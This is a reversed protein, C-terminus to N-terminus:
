GADGRRTLFTPSNVIGAVLDQFKLGNGSFKSAVASLVSADMHNPDTMVLGRGLAYAYLKSTMCKPFAPDKAILQTLQVLGSFTAGSPLTGTSDIPLTNDVTRYQGIADYNEMGFGIPDMLHHCTACSPNTLHAELIQRLTRAGAVDPEVTTNVSPPPPPIDTCLLETMVYKGRKVPSTRDGHSNVTLFSGQTLFGQRQTNGTLDVRKLQDSGVPALGYFKALRDNAFTFNATLLQDAPLGNFAVEHFMMQTEAKFAAGLSPDFAPFLKADPQADDMLRTFLWQGAFNDVLAQAKPDALMRAIQGALQTPEHLDGAQAAAFLPADPMSSWLFYLLRSALEYEGLAHPTLSAPSPDIEPRYIFNPSLLVARLALGFGLETSDGKSTALTVSTMLQDVEATSVPRRWARPVFATLASRACTAGGTALDCAVLLSRQAPAALAAAILATTAANYSSVHLPSVTLVDAGNDFDAGRDDAPFNFDASPHSTTGLLDRVTNDYEALNLRHMTVRGPDTPVVGPGGTSSAGAGAGTGSASGAGTAAGSTGAGVAGPKYPGAYDGTISATCGALAAVGLLTSLLGATARCQNAGTM